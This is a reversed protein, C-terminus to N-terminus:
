EFIIQKLFRSSSTSVGAEGTKNLFEAPVQDELRKFKTRMLFGMDLIDSEKIDSLPPTQEGLLIKNQDIIKEQLREALNEKFIMLFGGSAVILILFIVLTYRNGKM